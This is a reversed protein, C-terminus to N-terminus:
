EHCDDVINGEHVDESRIFPDKVKKNVPDVRRDKQDMVRDEVQANFVYEDNSILHYKPFLFDIPTSKPQMGNDIAEIKEQAIEAAPVYPAFDIAMRYMMKAAGGNHRANFYFDGLAIKSKVVSEELKAINENVSDKRYDQPFISLFEQYYRKAALAGGQNYEVGKVLKTYIEATKLYADAVEISDPYLDIVRDLAEIAQDYHRMKMHLNAIEILAKPAYSSYPAYRVVLEYNEVASNYDRLGPIVGFYHPRTGEQLRKAIEFCKGVSRTFWVSNPYHKVIKTFMDIASTFKHEEENILGRLFYLEASLKSDPYKKEILKCLKLIKAKENAQKAKDLQSLLESLPVGQRQKIIEKQHRGQCWSVHTRPFAAPASTMFFLFVIFHSRLSM